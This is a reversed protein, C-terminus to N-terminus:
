NGEAADIFIQELPSTGEDNQDYGNENKDEKRM